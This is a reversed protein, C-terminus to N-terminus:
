FESAGGFLRPLYIDNDLSVVAQMDFVPFKHGVGLMLEKGDRTSQLSMSVNFRYLVRLM